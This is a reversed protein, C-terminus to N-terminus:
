GFPVAQLEPACHQEVTQSPPNQLGGQWPEPPLQVIVASQQEPRVQSMGGPAVLPVHLLSVPGVQASVPWDQPDSEHQLAVSVHVFPSQVAGTYQWSVAWTQM